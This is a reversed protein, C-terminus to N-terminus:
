FVWIKATVPASARLYLRDGTNATLGNYIIAAADLSAVLYGRPVKGLGHSLSVEANATPFVADVLNPSVNDVLTLNGNVLSAIEQAFQTLFSKMKEPEEINTFDTPKNLKM